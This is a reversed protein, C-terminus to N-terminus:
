KIHLRWAHDLATGIAMIDADKYDFITYLNYLSFAALTYSSQKVSPIFHKLAWIFNFLNRFDTPCSSFHIVLRLESNMEWSSDFLTSMSNLGLILKMQGAGCTKISENRWAFLKLPKTTIDILCFEFPLLLFNHQGCGEAAQALPPQGVACQGNDAHVRAPLSNARQMPYSYSYYMMARVNVATMLMWQPLAAFVWQLAERVAAPQQNSSNPPAAFPGENFHFYYFQFSFIFILLPVVAPWLPLDFVQSNILFPGAAAVPGQRMGAAGGRTAGM